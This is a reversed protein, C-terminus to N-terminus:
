GRLSPQIRKSMDYLVDDPRGKHWTGCRARTISDSDLSHPDGYASANIASTPGGSQGIICAGRLESM